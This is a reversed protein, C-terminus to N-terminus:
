IEAVKKALRERAGLDPHLGRGLYERFLRNAQEEIKANVTSSQLWKAVQGDGESSDQSAPSRIQALTGCAYPPPKTFTLKVTVM